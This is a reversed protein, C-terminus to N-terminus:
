KQTRKRRRFYRQRVRDVVEKQHEVHFTLEENGDIKM